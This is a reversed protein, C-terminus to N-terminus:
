GGGLGGGRGARGGHRGRGGGQRRRGGRRRWRGSTPAVGVFDNLVVVKWLFFICTWGDWVWLFNM